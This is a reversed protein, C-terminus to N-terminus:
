YVTIYALLKVPDSLQISYKVSHCVLHASTLAQANVGDAQRAVTGGSRCCRRLSGRFIAGTNRMHGKRRERGVTGGSCRASKPPADEAVPRVMEAVVAM